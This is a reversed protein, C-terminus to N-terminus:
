KSYYYGFLKGDKDLRYDRYGRIGSDRDNIIISTTLRINFYGTYEDIFEIKNSNTDFNTESKLWNSLKEKAVEVSTISSGLDMILQPSGNDPIVINRQTCGTIILVGFILLLIKKMM